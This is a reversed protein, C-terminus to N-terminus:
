PAEGNPGAAHEIQGMVHEVFPRVRPLLDGWGEIAIGHLHRWRARELVALHEPFVRLIAWAAAPASHAV